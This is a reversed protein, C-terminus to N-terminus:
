KTERRPALLCHQHDFDITVIYKSLLGNGILGAEDAFMRTPHLGARVTGCCKEGLKVSADIQRPAGSALGITTLGLRSAKEKTVVWELASGCGTDLRLWEPVNGAVSASTCLTENRMKLPLIECGAEELEERQLLLIRQRSFDIRVIRGRFFDVGLLGDIRRASTRSLGSLDMALLSSPVTIGAARAAFGEVRHATATGCTGQVTQPAGIELRLRRATGLDLVSAGAGSDLLFNLPENKGTTVVELWIMGGRYTFPIATAAKVPRAISLLLTFLLAIVHAVRVRAL